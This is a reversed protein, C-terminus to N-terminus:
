RNPGTYFNAPEAVAVVPTDQVIGVKALLVRYSESADIASALWSPDTVLDFMRFEAHKNKDLMVDELALALHLVPLSQDWHGTGHRVINSVASDPDDAHKKKLAIRRLHLRRAAATKTLGSGGPLLGFVLLERTMSAIEIRLQVRSLAMSIPGSVNLTRSAIKRFRKPHSFKAGERSEARRILWEKCHNVFEDRKAINRPWALVAFFGAAGIQAVPGEVPLAVLEQPADPPEGGQRVGAM